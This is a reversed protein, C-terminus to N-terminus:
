VTVTVLAAPHEAVVVVFTVTFVVITAVADLLVGTHVPVVSFRNPPPPTDYLQVPGFVKVEVCCFGVIEPAVASFLPVYVTVTVSAPPQVALLVVVTDTFAPETPPVTLPLAATHAPLM